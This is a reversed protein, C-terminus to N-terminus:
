LAWRGLNVKMQCTECSGELPAEEACAEPTGSDDVPVSGIDVTFPGHGNIFHGASGQVNDTPASIMDM